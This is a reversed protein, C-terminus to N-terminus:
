LNGIMKETVRTWDSLEAETIGLTLQKELRDITRCLESRFKMAKETVAIKKKRGDEDDATRQILGNKEMGKLIETATPPRMGFEEEIDRQYAPRGGANELLYHLVRGQAPSLGEPFGQSEILRRQKNALINVYRYAKDYKM